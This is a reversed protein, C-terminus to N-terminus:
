YLPHCISFMARSLAKMPMLLTSHYAV